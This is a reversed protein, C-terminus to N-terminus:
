FRNQWGLVLQGADNHLHGTENRALGIVALINMRDWGTRLVAAHPLEVPEPSPLPNQDQFAHAHELAEFLFAAPAAQLPLLYALPIGIRYYHVQLERREKEVQLRRRLEHELEKLRWPELGSLLPRM